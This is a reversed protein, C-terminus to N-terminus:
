QIILMPQYTAIGSLTGTREFKAHDIYVANANFSEELFKAETMQCRIAYPLMDVLKKYEVRRAEGVPIAKVLRKKGDQYSGNSDKYLFTFECPMSKRRRREILEQPLGKTLGIIKSILGVKIQDM